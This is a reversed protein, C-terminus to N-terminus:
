KIIAYVTDNNKNDKRRLIVIIEIILAFIEAFSLFSIDIFLGLNVGINGILDIIETKPM